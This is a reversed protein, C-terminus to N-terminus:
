KVARRETPISPHTGNVSIRLCYWTIPAAGSPSETRKVGVSGRAQARAPTAARTLAVPPACSRSSPISACSVCWVGRPPVRRRCGAARPPAAASRSSSGWPNAPTVRM